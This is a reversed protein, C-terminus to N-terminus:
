SASGKSNCEASSPDVSAAAPLDRSCRYYRTSGYDQLRLRGTRVLPDLLQRVKEPGGLAFIRDIDVATSPRRQVMTLIEEVLETRLRHAAPLQPDASPTGATHEDGAFPLRVPVGVAGQLYGAIATLRERSVPRAFPEAPPRLVTHLHISELRMQRLVAPLAEIDGPADNVDEVLLIELGIKGGYEHSFLSLGEIVTAVDLGRAPRDVRCFAEPQVADLSPEVWDAAMLAKRVEADILTTGNTLVVIPKNSVFKLHELIEGLGSHLTPEGQATVTLVDIAALRQPDACYVDIEACIASVPTYFGRRCVTHVTRGIECYICDLNCIKRSFLDIGLSRGLRRSHVPGFIYNM